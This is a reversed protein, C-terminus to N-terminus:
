GIVVGNLKLAGKSHKKSIVFKEKFGEGNCDYGVHDVSECVIVRDSESVIRVQIDNITLM